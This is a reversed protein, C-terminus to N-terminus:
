YSTHCSNLKAQSNLIAPCLLNETSKLISQFKSNIIMLAPHEMNCLHVISFTSVHTLGNYFNNSM